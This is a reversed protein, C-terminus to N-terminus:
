RSGLAPAFGLGKEGLQGTVARGRRHEVRRDVLVAGLGGKLRGGLATQPDDHALHHHVHPAVSIQLGVFTTEIESWSLSRRHLVHFPAAFPSTSYAKLGRKATAQLSFSM